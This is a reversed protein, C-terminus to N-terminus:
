QLSHKSLFGKITSINAEVLECRRNRKELGDLSAPRDPDKGIARSVADPFKAPHATALCIVPYDGGALDKGAKVGTATHPDLVYGTATHFDRITTLTQENDVSASTFVRNIAAVQQESFALQGTAAFDQMATKLQEM